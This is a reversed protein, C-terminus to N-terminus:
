IIEIFVMRERLWGRRKFVSELAYATFSVAESGGHTVVWGHGDPYKRLANRQESPQKLSSCRSISTQVPRTPTEEDGSQGPIIEGRANESRRVKQVIRVVERPGNAALHVVLVKLPGLLM